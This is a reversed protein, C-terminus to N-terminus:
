LADIARVCPKNVLKQPLEKHLKKKGPQVAATTHGVMWPFKWLLQGFSSVSSNVCETCLHTILYVEHRILKEYM